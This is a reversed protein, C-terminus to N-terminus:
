AGACFSRRYALPAVHTARKFHTRFNAPSGLGSRAAVEEVSLDTSELLQKAYEVRQAHLWRLPSLGTQATFHRTFGRESLRAHAAMRAVTLPECLQSLMWARTASLADEGSPADGYEIFQRQEGERRPAAVIRRAVTNALASGHDRRLLHLCLDIGAAVGASTLVSGEDVYLVDPDVSVLPYREALAACSRWHTTARLGDLVGAQALAFAGTCISVMRAGRAHAARLADLVEADLPEDHRAYGPVLVTDARALAGLGHDPTLTLGGVARVPRGGRSATTVTYQPLSYRGFVQLPIGADLPLVPDLLLVAVRHPPATDAAAPPVAVTASRPQPGPVATM